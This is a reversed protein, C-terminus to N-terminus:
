PLTLTMTMTWIRTVILASSMTLTMMVSGVGLEQPTGSVNGHDVDHDHNHDHGSRLPRVRPLLVAVHIGVLWGVSKKMDNM